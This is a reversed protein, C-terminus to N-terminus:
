SACWAELPAIPRGHRRASGLLQPLLEWKERSGESKVRCSFTPASPPFGNSPLPARPLRGSSLPLPPASALTGRLDASCGSLALTTAPLEVLECAPDADLGCLVAAPLMPGGGGRAAAEPRAALSAPATAATRSRGALPPAAAARRHCSVSKSMPLGSPRPLNPFTYRARSFFLMNITASLALSPAPHRHTATWAQRLVYSRQRPSLQTGAVIRTCQGLGPRLRTDLAKQQMDSGGAPRDHWKGLGRCM